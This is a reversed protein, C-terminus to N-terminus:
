RGRDKSFVTMFAMSLLHMKDCFWKVVAYRVIPSLQESM